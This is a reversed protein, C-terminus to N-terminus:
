SKLGELIKKFDITSGYDPLLHQEKAQNLSPSLIDKESLILESQDFPFTIGLSKDFPNIGHEKEPKYVDSVLYNVVTNDELSVFAHGFGEPIYVARRSISDLNVAEWLGFTPSGVRIDVIYDIISGSLVSVYKAQGPPVDAYHIGRLVGRHSLSTNMQRVVFNHGLYEQLLDSRFAELFKGRSDGFIQPEILYSGEISLESIKM